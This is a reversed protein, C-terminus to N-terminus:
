MLNCCSIVYKTLDHIEIKSSHVVELLDKEDGPVTDSYTVPCEKNQGSYDIQVPSGWLNEVGSYLGTKKFNLSIKDFSLMKSSCNNIEVRYIIQNPKRTIRDLDLQLEMPNAYSSVGDAQSGFWSRRLKESSILGLTQSNGNLIVRIRIFVPVALYFVSSEGRPIGIPGTTRITIPKPPAVAEFVYDRPADRFLVNTWKLDEPVVDEPVQAFDMLEADEGYHSAFGWEKDARALWLRLPGLRALTVRDEGIRRVSWFQRLSRM